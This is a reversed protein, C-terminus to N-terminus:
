DEFGLGVEGRAGLIDKGIAEIGTGSRVSMAVGDRRRLLGNKMRVQLSDWMLGLNLDDTVAFYGLIFPELVDLQAMRMM